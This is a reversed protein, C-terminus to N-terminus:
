DTFGLHRGGLYNLMLAGLSVVAIAVFATAIGYYGKDYLYGSLLMAVAMTYAQGRMTGINM